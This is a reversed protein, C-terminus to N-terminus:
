IGAFAADLYPLSRDRESILAPPLPWPIALGPDDYRIGDLKLYEALVEGRGKENIGNIIAEPFTKERGVLVGVRKM